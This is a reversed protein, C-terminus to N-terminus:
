KYVFFDGNTVEKKSLSELYINNIEYYHQEPTKLQQINGHYNKVVNPSLTNLWNLASSVGEDPEFLFGNEASIFDTIGGRKTGLVPIANNLMEMVVQPGNDEWISLVAGVDIKKLIEPLTNANYPGFDEGGVAKFKKLLESDGRGYFSFKLQPNTNKKCIEIFLEAGKIRTFSGLFAVNIKDSIVKIREPVVYATDNGISVTKQNSKTFDSFIEGVRTSVPLVFRANRLLMTFFYTRKYIRDSPFTPIKIKLKNLGRTLFDFQELKGVCNSCKSLDINRCVNQKKDVMFVRPCILNYDHLSVIYNLGSKSFLESFSIDIGLLSHIHYVDAKESVLDNYFELYSPDSAFLNLTFPRISSNYRKVLYDSETNKNNEGNCYVVVKDGNKSQATALSRVYNTIGGPYEVPFGMCIHVIKIKKM